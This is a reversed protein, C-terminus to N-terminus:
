FSRLLPIGVILVLHRFAGWVGVCTPQPHGQLCQRQLATPTMLLTLQRSAHGRTPWM